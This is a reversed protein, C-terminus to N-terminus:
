VFYFNDILYQKYDDRYVQQSKYFACLESSDKFTMWKSILQNRKNPATNFYEQQIPSYKETVPFTSRYTSDKWNDNFRKLTDFIRDFDNNLPDTPERRILTAGVHLNKFLYVCRMAFWGGYKEHLCVGM